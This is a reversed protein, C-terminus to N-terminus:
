FGEPTWDTIQSVKKLEYCVLKDSNRFSFNDELGLNFRLGCETDKKIVNVEDKLHRMSFIEMKDKIVDENRILKYFCGSKKLSGKVCRCGAIPVKKSKEHILFEQLVVAEGIVNEVDVEPMRNNIEKKVDNVLHYIVNFRKVSVELEKALGQAKSLTEVNFCYICTNKFCSALNVDNESVAGVDAHIINMKVPKEENPYSELVNLLAELSGNVDAKLIINLKKDEDPDELIEKSRLATPRIKKLGKARKAELNAKYVVRHEEASKAAVKSASKAKEQSILKLHAAFIDRAQKESEIQFVEDGAIPLTENKWGIIQVPVSPCAKELLKGWEDFMARVKAFALHNEGAIIVDGKKLCGSQVLVTALRGRHSDIKSEIITGKVRGEYFARLQMMEALAIIAEKLETLGERKLASVYIAQTEGGDEELVIGQAFLGGKVKEVSKKLNEVKDIKNVAVIIPVGASKAFNISEITQNMVGDDAAVVLVVIDTLNAGRERMASFAAHGPTDLITVSHGDLTVMFAGIHQTIGGFEQKVLESHRLADLLTTKGHDVHGMITVIPPRKRLSKPPISFSSEIMSKIDIVQEEIVKNPSPVVNFRKQLHIVITKIDDISNLRKVNAKHMAEHIDALPLGVASQVDSVSMGEWINVVPLKKAKVSNLCASTSLECRKCRNSSELFTQLRFAANRQLLSLTKCSNYVAFM